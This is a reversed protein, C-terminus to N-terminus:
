EYHQLPQYEENSEVLLASHYKVAKSGAASPQLCYNKEIRKLNNNVIEWNTSADYQEKTAIVSPLTPDYDRRTATGKVITGQENYYLRYEIDLLIPPDILSFAELLNQTTDSM